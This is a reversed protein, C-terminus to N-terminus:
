TGKPLKYKMKEAKMDKPILMNEDKCKKCIFLEIGKM